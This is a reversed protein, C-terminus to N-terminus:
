YSKTLTLTSGSRKMDLRNLFSMGLLTIDMGQGDIVAADVQHLTVDGVRVTDLTVRYVSVPGNATYSVGREGNLYSIGLRKAEATSMAINTAGTDVLFRTTGGNMQGTTVFHGNGDATLVIKARESSPGASAISQGLLLRERKGNIEVVASESNAEILKIGNIKQGVSILKAPAKNIELMAKGPFLGVVNVDVAMASTTLLLSVTGILKTHFKM